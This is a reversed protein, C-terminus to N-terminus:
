QDITLILHKQDNENKGFITIKGQDTKTLTPSLFFLLSSLECSLLLFLVVFVVTVVVFVVVLVFVVVVFVVVVVVISIPKSM